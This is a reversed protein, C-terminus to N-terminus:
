VRERCSARGIQFGFMQSIHWEDVFMRTGTAFRYGLASYTPEDLQIRMTFCLYVQLILVLILVIKQLQKRSFQKGSFEM